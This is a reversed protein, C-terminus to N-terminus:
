IWNWEQGGPTDKVLVGLSAMQDRIEDSKAFDKDLRAVRRAELLNELEPTLEVKPAEGRQLDLGYIQDM